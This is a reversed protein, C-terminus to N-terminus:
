ERMSRSSKEALVDSAFVKRAERALLTVRTHIIKRICSLDAGNGLHKDNSLRKTNSFEVTASVWVLRSSRTPSRSLPSSARSPLMGM